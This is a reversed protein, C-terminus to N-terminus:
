TSADTLGHENFVLGSCREIHRALEGAQDRDRCVLGFRTVHLEAPPCPWESLGWVQLRQEDFLEAFQQLWEEPWPFPLGDEPMAQLHLVGSFWGYPETPSSFIPLDVHIAVM